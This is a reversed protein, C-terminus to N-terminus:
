QPRARMLLAEYMIDNNTENGIKCNDPSPIRANISVLYKSYGPGHCQCCVRRVCMGPIMVSQLSIYDNSSHTTLMKRGLVLRKESVRSASM